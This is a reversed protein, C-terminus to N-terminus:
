QAEGPPPPGAMIERIKQGLRDLTLPKTLLDFGKQIVYSQVVHTDYYGSVFLIRLGPQLAALRDALMPGSMGPMVVDTVLLNIGDPHQEFVRLAEEGGCAPLVRYGHHALMAAMLKLVHPEDDVVLITGAPTQGDQM